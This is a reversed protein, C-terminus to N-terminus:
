VPGAEHSFDRKQDMNKYSFSKEFNKKKNRRWIKHPVVKEKPTEILFNMPFIKEIFFMYRTKTFSKIKVRHIGRRPKM